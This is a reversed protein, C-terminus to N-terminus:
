VSAMYILQTSEISHELPTVVYPIQALQRMATSCFISPAEAQSRARIAMPEIAEAKAFRPRCPVCKKPAFDNSAIHNTLAERDSGHKGIVRVQLDTLSSSDTVDILQNEISVVGRVSRSLRDCADM